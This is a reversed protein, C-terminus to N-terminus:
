RAETEKDSFHPDSVQGACSAPILSHAVPRAGRWGPFTEAWPPLLPPLALFVDVGERWLEADVGGWGGPHTRLSAVWM